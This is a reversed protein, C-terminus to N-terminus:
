EDVEIGRWVIDGELYDHCGGDDQQNRGLSYLLFTNEKPIYVYPQGTFPDVPVEGGLDAAV